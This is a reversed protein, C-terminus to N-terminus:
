QPYKPRVGIGVSHVKSCRICRNVGIHEFCRKRNGWEGSAILRVDRMTERLERLRPLGPSVKIKACGGDGMGPLQHHRLAASMANPFGVLMRRRIQSAPIRTTSMERGAGARHPPEHTMGRSSNPLIHGGRWIYTHSPPSLWRGWIQIIEVDFGVLFM